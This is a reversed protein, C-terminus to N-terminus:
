FVFRGKTWELLELVAAFNEEATPRIQDAPLLFGFQGEDRLEICFSLVRHVGYVWDLIAGAAPYITTYVPGPTYNMGHVGEIALRMQNGVASFTPDSVTLTSTYSWPWLILQSYSHFDIHARLNPLSAMLQALRRTEVESMPSPGRYTESYVNSSSGQGGWEYGWNRNLDVGYAPGNQFNGLYRRNKRWLRNNTWTFVYGDPNVVPVIYVELRGLLDTIQTNSGYLGALQYAIYLNTSVTVWERAHQCGNFLVAPRNSYLRQQRVGRTIRLGYIPRGATSTGILFMEVLNPYQRQLNRMALIVQDYNQYQSFLDGQIQFDSEQSQIVAGVDSILVRIPLRMSRVMAQEKPSLCVDIDGLGVEHSWVDQVKELLTDLQAKTKVTVRWVQWGSYDSKQAQACVFLMLLGFLGIWKKM